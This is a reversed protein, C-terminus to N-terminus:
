CALKCTIPVSTRRTYTLVKSQVLAAIAGGSEASNDFIECDDLSLQAKFLTFAGGVSTGANNRM